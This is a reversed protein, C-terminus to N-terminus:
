SSYEFNANLKTHMEFVEYLLTIIRLDDYNLLNTNVFFGIYFSMSFQFNLKLLVNPIFHRTIRNLRLKQRTGRQM